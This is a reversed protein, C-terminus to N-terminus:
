LSFGYGETWDEANNCTRCIFRNPWPDRGCVRCVRGSKPKVQLGQNNRGGKPLVIGRKSMEILIPNFTISKGTKDSIYKAMKRTSRMRAHMEVLTEGCKEEIETWDIGKKRRGM